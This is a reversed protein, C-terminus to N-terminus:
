WFFNRNNIYWLHLFFRNLTKIRIYPCIVTPDIIRRQAFSFSSLHLILPQFHRRLVISIILHLLLHFSLYENICFQTLCFCRSLCVNFFFPLSQFHINFTVDRFLNLCAIFWLGLFFMHRLRCDLELDINTISTYIHYSIDITCNKCVNVLLLKSCSLM